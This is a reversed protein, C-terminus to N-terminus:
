VRLLFRVHRISIASTTSRATTTFIVGMRFLNVQGLLIIDDAKFLVEFIQFGLDDSYLFFQRLYTFRGLCIQSEAAMYVLRVKEDPQNEKLWEPTVFHIM